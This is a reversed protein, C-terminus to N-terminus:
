AHSLEEILADFGERVSPYRPAWSTAERGPTAFWPRKSIADGMARALDKKTMPEDDVVNYPRTHLETLARFM